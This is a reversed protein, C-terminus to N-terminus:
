RFWGMARALAAHQGSMYPDSPLSRCEGDVAMYHDRAASLLATLRQQTIADAVEIARAKPLLLTIEERGARLTQKIALSVDGEFMQTIRLRVAPPIELEIVSM